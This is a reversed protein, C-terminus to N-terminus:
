RALKYPRDHSLSPVRRRADRVKGLDIEAMHLGPDTGADLLVEGWPAVVLSHGYTTRQKGTTTPHTGTQATAIVFCGTEIARTRLLSEWHAAGTIPSFAAPATIIEAGAKALDRYLYAFRMDYCISFGITGLPTKTVVARDGPRYGDSERYTEDATVNVDFMHIKDYWGVVEGEDSILFSRNAFRGDADGTKLGLSGLHLWIGLQAAANRLTLLTPDDDQLCLVANQHDRSVSLCNTVEPTFLIDAGAAKANQLAELVHFLNEEPRDSSTMQLIAARM